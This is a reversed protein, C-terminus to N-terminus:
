YNNGFSILWDIGSTTYLKYKKLIEILTNIHENKYKKILTDRNKKLYYNHYRWIILVFVIVFVFPLIIVIYNIKLLPLLGSLFSSLFLFILMAIEYWTLKRQSSKKINKWFIFM